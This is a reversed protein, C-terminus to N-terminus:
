GTQESGTQSQRYTAGRGAQKIYAAEKESIINKQALTDILLEVIRATDYGTDIGAM